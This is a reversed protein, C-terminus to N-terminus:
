FRILDPNILQGPLQLDLRFGQDLVQRFNADGLLLRVRTREVDLVRFQHALVELLERRLLSGGFCRLFRRLFTRAGAGCRSRSRGGSWRHLSRRSL